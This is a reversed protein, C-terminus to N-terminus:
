SNIAEILKEAQIEPDWKKLVKSYANFGLTKAKQPNVCLMSIAATINQVSRPEILLGDVNNSIVEPVVGVKSVIVPLGSAMAEMMSNPFGESYSPLVFVDANAYQMELDNGRLWGHFIVKDKLEHEVVFSVAEPMYNGDGVIHLELDYKRSVENFSNLLENVGKSKELWGVFLLRKIKAEKQNRNRGIELLSKNSLWNEIIPLKDSQMNLHTICFDRWAEGQCLIKNPFRFLIKLLLRYFKSSIGKQIIAGSRPFLFSRAGRLHSYGCMLTKELLSFGSSSLILVKNIRYREIIYIFKIFRLFAFCARIPLSPPPNSVQTSDLLYLEYNNSFKTELLSRCASVNGGIIQSNNEPFAGVFLLNDKLM